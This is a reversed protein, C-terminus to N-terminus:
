AALTWRGAWGFSLVDTGVAATAPATTEVTFGAGGPIASMQVDAPVAAARVEVREAVTPPPQVTQVPTAVVTLGVAEPDVGAAASQGPGTLGGALTLGGFASQAVAMQAPARDSQRWSQLDNFISQTIRTAFNLSNAAGSGAVHVGFIIRAGTASNYEWVPSGSQGGYTTISSQWYQIARGDGSLGAIGGSSFYMRQGNYGGAAPYGATNLIHGAAFRNNNNDYGFLMSGTRNGITRDLTLLAIDNINTATQHAHTKTYNVFSTYTREYTMWAYGFPQYSGNMEPVVKISTAWGGDSYSYTNHGATLVHFADVLAGSGVYTQHDPFTIYLKAIATYPFGASASIPTLSPTERAELVAISLRATLRAPGRRTSTLWHACCRVVTRLM